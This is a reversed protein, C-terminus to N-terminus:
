RRHEHDYDSGARGVVQSMSRSHRDFKIAVGFRERHIIGRDIVIVLV